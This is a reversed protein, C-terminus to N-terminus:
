PYQLTSLANSSYSGHAAQITEKKAGLKKFTISINYLASV